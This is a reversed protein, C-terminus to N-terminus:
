SVGLFLALNFRAVKSTHQPLSFITTAINLSHRTQALVPSHRECVGAWVIKMELLEKLYTPSWTVSRECTFFSLTLSM